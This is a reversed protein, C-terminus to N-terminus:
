EMPNASCHGTVDTRFTSVSSQTQGRSLASRRIRLPETTNQHRAPAVLVPDSEADPLTYYDMPTGGTCIQEHFELVSASKSSASTSCQKPSTQLLPSSLVSQLMKSSVPQRLPIPGKRCLFRRAPSVTVKMPPSRPNHPTLFITHGQEKAINASSPSSHSSPPSSICSSSSPQESALMAQSFYGEANTGPTVLYSTSEPTTQGAPNDVLEPTFPGATKTWILNAPYLTGETSTITTSGLPMTVDVDYSNELLSTLRLDIPSGLLGQRELMMNLTPLSEYELTQPPEPHTGDSMKSLIQPQRHIGSDLALGEWLVSLALRHSISSPLTLVPLPIPPGVRSGSMDAKLFTSLGTSSKFPMLKDFASRLRIRLKNKSELFVM